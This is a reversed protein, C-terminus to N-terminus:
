AILWKEIVAAICILVCRMLLDHNEGTEVLIELKGSGALM